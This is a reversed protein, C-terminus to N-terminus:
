FSFRCGEVLGFMLFELNLIDDLEKCLIFVIEGNLFVLRGNVVDINFMKM